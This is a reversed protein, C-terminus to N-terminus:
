TRFRNHGRQPRINGCYSDFDYVLRKAKSKRGVIGIAVASSCYYDGEEFEQTLIIRGNQIRLKSTATHHKTKVVSSQRIRYEQSQGPFSKAIHRLMRLNANIATPKKRRDTVKIAMVDQKNWALIQAKVGQGEVTVFADYVSLHQLTHKDPFVDPGFDVFDIDIYGCGYAYDWDRRNFSKTYSNNAYVDVRNIQFKLASPSTWVLSGMRGNGVPLGEESRLVPKDYTLDARSILNRYNVSLM